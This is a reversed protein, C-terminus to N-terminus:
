SDWRFKNIPYTTELSKLRFDRILILVVRYNAEVQKIQNSRIQRDIIRTSLEHTRFWTNFLLKLMEKYKMM